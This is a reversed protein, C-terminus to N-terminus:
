SVNRPFTRFNNPLSTFDLEIINHVKTIITNRSIAIINGVLWQQRIM